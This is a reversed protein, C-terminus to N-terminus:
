KRLARSAEARTIVGRSGRGEGKRTLKYQTHKLSSRVVRVFSDTRRNARRLAKVNLPNMRRRKFYGTEGGPLMRSITGGIGPVPKMGAPPPLPGLSIPPAFPAPVPAPIIGVGKAAGKLAGLPGGTLFGAVGGLAGKALKGLTGFIDGRYYDGRGRGYYDGMTYYPM